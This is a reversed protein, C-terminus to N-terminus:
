KKAFVKKLQPDISKVASFAWWLGPIDKDYISFWM